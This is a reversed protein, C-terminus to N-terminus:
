NTAVGLVGLSLVGLGWSGLSESVGVSWTWSPGIRDTYKRQKREKGRGKRRDPQDGDVGAGDFMGDRGLLRRVMHGLTVISCSVVRKGTPSQDARKSVM